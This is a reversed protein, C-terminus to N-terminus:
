QRRHGPASPARRAVWPRLDEALGERLAAEEAELASRGELRARAMLEGVKLGATHLEIVPAPLIEGITNASHGGGPDRRPFCNIGVASLGARDVGGSYNVVAVGPAVEALRQATIEGCPGIFEKQRLPDFTLVAEAQALADLAAPESMRDAVKRGGSAEVWEQTGSTVALVQAGMRTLFAMVRALVPGDGVFVLRCGVVEVGLELLFWTIRLGTFRFLDIAVEDVGAAAIGREWCAELDVEHPRWDNGGFMLSVVATPKLQGVVSRDIPRVAGLNTLIDAAGFVSGAREDVVEVCDSVQAQRAFYITQQRAQDVTGFRTEQALALVRAAGALAAIVPTVRYYGTAAETLITLGALNLRYHVIREEILRLVRLSPFRGDTAFKPAHEFM